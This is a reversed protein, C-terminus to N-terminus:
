FLEHVRNELLYREFEYEHTKKGDKRSKSTPDTSIFFHYRGRPHQQAIKPLFKTEILWVKQRELEVFAFLDAPSNEPVWWDISLKGKGGGPKPKQNTKVQITLAAKRKNSFAVLDVGADTTLPASEIGQLLLRYQVILEGCKGIQQNSLKM